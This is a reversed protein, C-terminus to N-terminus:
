HTTCWGLMARFLDDDNMMGDALHIGFCRCVDQLAHINNANPPPSTTRGHTSQNTSAIFHTPDDIRICAPSLPVITPRPHQHNFEMASEVPLYTALDRAGISIYPKFQVFAKLLLENGKEERVLTVLIGMLNRVEKPTLELCVQDGRLVRGLSKEDIKVVETQQRDFFPPESFYDALTESERKKAKKIYDGRQRQGMMGFLLALPNM